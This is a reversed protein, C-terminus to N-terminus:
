VPLTVSPYYGATVKGCRRTTAYLRNTGPQEIYKGNSKNCSAMATRDRDHAIARAGAM